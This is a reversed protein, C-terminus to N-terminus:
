NYLLVPFKKSKEIEEKTQKKEVRAVSFTTCKGLPPSVYSFLPFFSDRDKKTMNM